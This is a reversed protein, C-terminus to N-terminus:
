MGNVEKEMEDVAFGMMDFPVLSLIKGSCDTDVCDKLFSKTYAVQDDKSLGELDEEIGKVIKMVCPTQEEMAKERSRMYSRDQLKSLSLDELGAENMCDCLAEAHEKTNSGCSTILITIVGVVVLKITNKMKINKM